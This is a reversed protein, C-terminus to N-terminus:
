EGLFKVKKVKYVAEEEETFKLKSADVKGINENIDGKTTVFTGDSSGLTSVSGFNESLSM